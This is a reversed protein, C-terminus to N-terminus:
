SHRGTNKCLGTPKRPGRFGRQDWGWGSPTVCRCRIPPVAPTHTHTVRQPGHHVAARPHHRVPARRQPVGQDTPDTAPDAGGGMHPPLVGTMHSWTVNRGLTPSDGTIRVWAGLLRGYLGPDTRNYLLIRRIPEPRGSAPAFAMQADPAGASHAFDSLDGNVANTAPWQVTGGTEGIARLPVKTGQADQAVIEAIHLFDTKGGRDLVIRNVVTTTTSTSSAVTASPPPPLAVAATVAAMATATANNNNNPRVPCDAQLEQLLDRLEAIRVCPSSAM